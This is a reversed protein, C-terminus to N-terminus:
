SLDHGADASRRPDRNSLIDDRERLFAYSGVRFDLDAEEERGPEHRYDGFASWDGTQLGARLALAFSAFFPWAIVALWVPAFIDGGVGFVTAATALGLPGLVVACERHSCHSPHKGCPRRECRPTGADSRTPTSAPNM